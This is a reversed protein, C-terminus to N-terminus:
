NAITKEKITVLEAYREWQENVTVQEVGVPAVGEKIGFSAPTEALQRIKETEAVVEAEAEKVEEEITKELAELAM